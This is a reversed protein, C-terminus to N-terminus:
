SFVQFSADTTRQRARQVHEDCNSYSPKVCIYKLIENALTEAPPMRVGRNLERSMSKLNNSVLIRKFISLIGFLYGVMRNAFTMLLQLKAQDESIQLKGASGQMM